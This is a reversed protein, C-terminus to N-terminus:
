LAFVVFTEEVLKTVVCYRDLCTGYAAVYLCANNTPISQQVQENNCVYCYANIRLLFGRCRVFDHLCCASTM